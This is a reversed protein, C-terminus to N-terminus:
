VGAKEEAKRLNVTNLTQGEEDFFDRNENFFLQMELHGQGPLGEGLLIPDACFTSRVIDSTIIDVRLIDGVDFRSPVMRSCTDICRIVEEVGFRIPMESLLDSLHKGVNEPNRLQRIRSELHHIKAQSEEYGPDVATIVRVSSVKPTAITPATIEPAQTTLRVLSTANLSPKAPMNVAHEKMLRNGRGPEFEDRILKYKAISRKVLSMLHRHADISSSDILYNQIEVARLEHEHIQTIVSLLNDFINPPLSLSDIADDSRVQQRLVTDARTVESRRDNDVLASRMSQLARYPPSMKHERLRARYESLAKGISGTSNMDAQKRNTERMSESLSIISTRVDSYARSINDLLASKEQASLDKQVDINDIQDQIRDRQAKLNARRAEINGSMQSAGQILADFLTDMTSGSQGALSSSTSCGNYSAVAYAAPGLLYVMEVGDASQRSGFWAADSNHSGSWYNLLQDPNQKNPADRRGAYRETASRIIPLILSRPIESMHKGTFASNVVDIILPLNDQRLLTIEKPVQGSPNTNISM